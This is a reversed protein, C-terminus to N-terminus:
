SQILTKHYRSKLSAPFHAYILGIADFYQPPYTLESFEGVTYEIQINKKKALLLAKDKGSQSLDFAYVSWGLQAAAVENRGEGEAPLLIKGVALDKIKEEFFVNPEEGYAFEKASYRENWFEKM